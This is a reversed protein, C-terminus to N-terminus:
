RGDITSLILKVVRQTGKRLNRSLMKKSLNARKVKSNVLEGFATLIQNNAVSVGLGLNLFGNEISAFSHSMERKNQALVIAPTGICAIEYVTRGCATFVVDARQIFDAMSHIDQYIKAKKFKALTKQESYGLGLVVNIEIGENVCYDYIAQLVRLTLNNPDTGGFTILISTVQNETNKIKTLLFEDRACFYEYGWYFNKDDNLKSYLANIVCDAYDAGKGLDEFNIVKIEKSKLAKIYREDTDLIDNIVVDPNLKEIEKVLDDEEQISVNYNYQKLKLFGEMSNKTVLFHINHSTINNALLLTRYIHGFGIKNYGSVVFLVDKRNLYYNALNFDEYTDIDIAESPNDLIYLQINEGIRTKNTVVNSKSILFGGTESYVPKLFQRNLREKYNPVCKEGDKSWTLHTTDKASIITDISNSDLIMDIANDLSETKLLPSTPQLTVVLEYNVNNNKSINKYADYIVPDLTTEGDSIEKDRKYVQAGLKQSIYLIEDDDSSVYVDLNHKSKLATSISYAILPKGALNRLNKRPIGVSGGRAPIILLIKNKKSINNKYFDITKSLGDDLTTTATLGLKNMKSNDLISDKIDGSREQLYIPNIDSKLIKKLKFFLQNVSVRTNTSLNVVDNKYKFELSKIISDVVDEVFIFDRCQEGDGYITVTRNNLMNNIFISVVGSESSNSQRPGYVNSFRFIIYDLGSLKIYSEMTYKSLAYPSLPCLESTELIPLCKPNGYVAASSSAIIKNVNYKKCVDILNLTALINAIGDKKPNEVSANVSTQAALHIVTDIKQEEFIKFLQESELNIKYYVAIANRYKPTDKDVVCVSYGSEILKDVLCSGIFGCGGTVLITKNIM